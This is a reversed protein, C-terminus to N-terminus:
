AERKPPPIEQHCRTPHRDQKPYPHFWGAHRHLQAESRPVSTQCSEISIGCPVVKQHRVSILWGMQSRTGSFLKEVIYCVTQSLEQFIVFIQSLIVFHVM